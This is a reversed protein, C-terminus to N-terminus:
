HLLLKTQPSVTFLLTKKCSEEDEVVKPNQAEQESIYLKSKDKAKKIHRLLYLVM